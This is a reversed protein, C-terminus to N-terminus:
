VKTYNQGTKLATNEADETQLNEVQKSWKKIIIERLKNEFVKNMLGAYLITAVLMLFYVAYAPLLDGINTRGVYTCLSSYLYISFSWLGLEHIVCFRFFWTIGGKGSSLGLLLLLYFPSLIVDWLYDETIRKIEGGTPVLAALLVIALASMDTLVWWVRSKSIETNKHIMACFMGMTFSMIRLPPFGRMYTGYADKDKTSTGEPVRWQVWFGVGIVLLTLVYSIVIGFIANLPRHGIQKVLPSLWPFIVWFFAFTSIAWIQQNWYNRMYPIWSQMLTLVSVTGVINYWVALSTYDFYLLLTM